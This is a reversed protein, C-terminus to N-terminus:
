SQGRGPELAFITYSATTGDAYRHRHVIVTWGLARVRRVYARAEPFHYFERSHTRYPRFSGDLVHFTTHHHDAM